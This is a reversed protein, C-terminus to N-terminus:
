AVIGRRGCVGPGLAGRHQDGPWQTEAIQRREDTQADHGDDCPQCAVHQPRTQCSREHVTWQVSLFSFFHHRVHNAFQSCSHRQQQDVVRAHGRDFVGDAGDGGRREARNEYVTTVPSEMTAASVLMMLRASFVLTQGVIAARGSNLRREGDGGQDDNQHQTRSTEGRQRHLHPTDIGARSAARSAARPSSPDASCAASVDSRVARLKLQTLFTSQHDRGDGRMRDQQRADRDRASVVAAISGRAIVATRRRRTATAIIATSSANVM